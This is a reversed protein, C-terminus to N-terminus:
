GGSIKAQWAFIATVSSTTNIKFTTSTITDVWYTASGLSTIPTALISYPLPTASLGHNVVVSTGSTITASGISSTVYGPNGIIYQTPGLGGNSISGTNNGTTDVGIISYNNINGTSIFIGYQQNNFGAAQWGSGYKGGIISLDNTDTGDISIGSYQNLGQMSNALCQCNVFGLNQGGQVYIGHYKNNIARFNTISFSYCGASIELGHNNNTSGWCNVMNVQEVTGGNTFFNWGTTTCTDCLVTDFFMDAAYQSPYPGTAFGKYCSLIDLNSCYLGSVQQAFIGTNPCGSVIGNSIFVDQPSSNTGLVIGYTCQDIEFNDIFYEFQSAGGDLTIGTYLNYGIIVDSIRIFHSNTIHIASGSTQTTSGIISLNSIGGESVPNSSTGISIIDSSVIYTLITSAGRGEGVLYINNATWSITSTVKYTGRPFYVTGGTANLSNIANQIATTDDNVGNGVAGFDKVSLIENLKLNFDRNVANAVGLDYKPVLTTM